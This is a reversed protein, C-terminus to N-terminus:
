HNPMRPLLEIGHENETCAVCQCKIFVLQEQQPAHIILHGNSVPAEASLVHVLLRERECVFSVYDAADHTNVCLTGINGNMGKEPM